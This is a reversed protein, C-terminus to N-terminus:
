PPISIHMNNNNNNFDTFLTQLSEAEPPSREGSGRGPKAGGSGWQPNGDGVDQLCYSGFSFKQRGFWVVPATRSSYIQPCHRRLGLRRELKSHCVCFASSNVSHPSTDGRWGVLPNPPAYKSPWM